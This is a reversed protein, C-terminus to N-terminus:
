KRKKNKASARSGSRSAVSSRGTGKSSKASSKQRAESLSRGQKSSKTGSKRVAKEVRPLRATAPIPGESWEMLVMSAQDGFRRGLRLIKTYGGPRNTFRPAIDNVLKGLANPLILGSLLNRTDKGNRKVKTILKDVEGKIAKAKAETTKIREKLILSTILSRFLAKRENIDRKLKRGFVNKKM